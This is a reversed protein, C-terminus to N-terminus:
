NTKKNELKSIIKGSNNWSIVHGFSGKQEVSGGYILINDKPSTNTFTNWRALYDLFNKNFVKSAKVEIPVVRTAIEVICDVEYGSRDRWFYCSPDNGKNYFQKLLDSIIFSEFLGGRLYHSFMQETDRIGLLSAAVGTDYFFLKPAKIVRKSFNKYYPQLLFIIYSAQLVSLWQKITNVSMGADNSLSSVNLVQGTRGACLKMFKQFMSLDTVNQIQRVDREIYTNIYNKYWDVPAVKDAWIRPYMGRLLTENINEPLLDYANLEEISLPLLTLIAIRGALSQSVAQNLYLNQSGTIIFHGMKKSFDIHTQMYSLLDPVHQIEDFIVGKENKYQDLFARPDTRVLQRIDPDEFSFYRYNPFTNVALTTKGSQRPGLIAVAPFHQALDLLKPRMARKIIM